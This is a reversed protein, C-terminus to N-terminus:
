LMKYFVKLFGRQLSFMSESGVDDPVELYTSIENRSNKYDEITHKTKMFSMFISEPSPISEGVVFTEISALCSVTTKFFITSKESCKSLICLGEAMLAAGGLLRSLRGRDYYIDRIHEYSLIYIPIGVHKYTPLTPSCDSYYQFQLINEKGIKSLFEERLKTDSVRPASFTLIKVQNHVHGSVKTDDKEESIKFKFHLGALLAVAGGLGYGTFICEKKRDLNFISQYEKSSVINAFAEVVGSHIEGKYNGFPVRSACMLYRLAAIYLSSFSDIGRFAVIIRDTHEEIVGLKVGNATIYGRQSSNSNASRAVNAVELIVNSHLQTATSFIKDSESEAAKLFHILQLLVLFKLLIKM